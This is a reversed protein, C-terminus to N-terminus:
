VLNKVQTRNSTAFFSEGSAAPLMHNEYIHNMKLFWIKNDNRQESYQVSSIRKFLSNSYFLSSKWTIFKISFCNTKCVTNLVKNWKYEYWGFKLREDQTKDQEQEFNKYM